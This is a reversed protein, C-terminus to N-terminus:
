EEETSEWGRADKRWGYRRWMEFNECENECTKVKMKVSECKWMEYMEVGKCKLVEM